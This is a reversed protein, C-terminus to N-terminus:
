DTNQQIKEVDNEMMEESVPSEECIIQIETREEEWDMKTVNKFKKYEVTIDDSSLYRQKNRYIYRRFIM